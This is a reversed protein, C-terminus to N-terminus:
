LGRSVETQRITETFEAIDVGLYLHGLEALVAVSVAGCHGEYCYERAEARDRWRLTLEDAASQQAALADFYYKRQGLVGKGDVPHM